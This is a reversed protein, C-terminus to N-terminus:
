AMSFGAQTIARFCAAQICMRSVHGATCVLGLSVALMEILGFEAPILHGLVFVLNGILIDPVNYVIHPSELLLCGVYFNSLGSSGRSDRNTMKYSGGLM